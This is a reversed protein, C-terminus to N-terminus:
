PAIQTVFRPVGDQIQLIVAPKSANRNEDITINGTVGNFGATGAIASALPQPETTGAREIADKLIYVSDYALAAMADPEEGYEEKFDAIFNQVEPRTDEPSYHNSYYGGEIADDAIETLKDSTWGDGGIMIADIGKSKVQIAITAVDTYYGPIFIAEPNADRISNLQSNFDQEGGTYAEIAVIEGGLETFSTEFAEKLGRSYAQGTDYLIACKTVDQNETLFKAVVLGQFPDIFCIRHIMDGIKTVDPNTSAPSIMPVGLQQAVNGGADSLSSAVEGLVAVVDENTILRTVANGAEQSLSRTDYTVLELEKGMVGGAANIEKQAMESGKKSSQGFTAQPGTLSYYQGVKITEADDSSGGGSQASSGDDSSTCGTFAAMAVLCFISLISFYKRPLIHRM